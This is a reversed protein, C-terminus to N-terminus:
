MKRRSNIFSSVEVENSIKHQQLMSRLVALDPSHLSAIGTENLIHDIEQKTPQDAFEFLALINNIDRSVRYLKPSTQHCVDKLGKISLPLAQEVVSPLVDFVEHAIQPTLLFSCLSKVARPQLRPPLQMQTERALSGAMLISKVIDDPPAMGHTFTFIEKFWEQAFREQHDPHVVNFIRVGVDLPLRTFVEDILKLAKKSEASTLPKLVSLRSELEHPRDLRQIIQHLAIVSM